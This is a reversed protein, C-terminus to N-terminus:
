ECDLGEAIAIEIESALSSFACRLETATVYYYQGSKRGIGERKFMRLVRRAPWAARGLIKSVDSTTMLRPARKDTM